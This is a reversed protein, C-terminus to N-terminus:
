GTHTAKSATKPRRNLIAKNQGKFAVKSAANPKLGSKSVNAPKQAPVNTPAPAAPASAPASNDAEVKCKVGAPIKRDANNISLRARFTGSAADLFNDVQTVQGLTATAGSIDATVKMSQGERVSGFQAAPLIVEAKLKQLNIIKFIAKGDAREGVNLSREAIVGDIPSRILRQELQSQAIGVDKRANMLMDKSHQLRHDSVEHELRAQDLELQTGHGLNMLEHSKRLKLKALDRSAAAADIDAESAARQRAAGLNAKEVDSTLYALVQGRKVRAGRDAAINAIVGPALAAVESIQSPEILCGVQAVATTPLLSFTITTAIICRLPRNLSM